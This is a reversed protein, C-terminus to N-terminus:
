GLVTYQDGLWVRVPSEVIGFHHTEELVILSHYLSVSDFRSGPMILATDQAVQSDSRILVYSEFRGARHESCRQRGVLMTRFAM